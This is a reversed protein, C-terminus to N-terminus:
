TTKKHKFPEEVMPTTNQKIKQTVNADCDNDLVKIPFQRFEFEHRCIHIFEYQLMKQVFKTYKLNKVTNHKGFKRSWSQVNKPILTTYSHAIHPKIKSKLNPDLSAAGTTKM